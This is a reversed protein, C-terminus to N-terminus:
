AFFLITIVAIAGTYYAFRYLKAQKIIKELLTLALYGSILASIFGALYTTIDGSALNLDSFNLLSAGIIAPISLLFSFTFAQEQKIGLNLSTAITAGSRSVGPILAIAQALGIKLAKRTTLKQNNKKSSKTSILFFSTIVLGLIAIIPIQFILDIQDKILLGFIAAPISGIVLNTITGKDLSILEKWFFIITATLTATHLVVDFVTGLDTNLYEQILVLHGSSSVPLFETVGQVLGLLIAQQM